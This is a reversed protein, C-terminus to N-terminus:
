APHPNLRLRIGQILLALEADTAGRRILAALTDYDNPALMERSPFTLRFVPDEPAREWDILDEVVYNNVRFPLVRAVVKMAFREEASFKRLQPLRGIATIGYLQLRRNSHRDDM